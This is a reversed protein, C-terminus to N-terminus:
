YRRRHYEMLRLLSLERGFRRQSDQRLVSAIGSANLLGTALRYPWNDPEAWCAVTLSREALTTM